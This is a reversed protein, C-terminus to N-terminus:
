HFDAPGVLSSLLHNCKIPHPQMLLFLGPRWEAYQMPMADQVKRFRHPSQEQVFTSLYLYRPLSKLRFAEQVKFVFISSYQIKCFKLM